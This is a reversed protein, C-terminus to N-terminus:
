PVMMTEIHINGPIILGNEVPIIDQNQMSGRSNDQLHISLSYIYSVFPFQEISRFIEDYSLSDGFNKENELYNLKEELLKRIKSDVNDYHQRIYIVASVNVPVVLPQQIEVRTGLLRRQELRELIIKSYDERIAISKDHLAPLCVVRVQNRGPDMLARAKKICLGPTSLVLKEYDERTVAAFPKEIDELFRNRVSEQTERFCGGSGAAPNTFLIDEPLGQGKFYNGAKVNGNEGDFLVVSGLLIQAGIFRGAEQICIQGSEPALTYNFAGAEEHGPKAFDFLVEGNEEKRLLLSFSDAVLKSFPLTVIQRDYGLVTALRYKRMVEEDYLIVRVSNRSKEPGYGHNGKNFSYIYEEETETIDFFRGNEQPAPAQKYQRYLGGVEERVLVSVYKRDVMDKRLHINTSKGSSIVISKTMRQRVELLFGDLQLLVPIMDYDARVLRGRICYGEEPLKSYIAAAEKPMRMRIEGNTLFGGTFDHSNMVVFGQETYVEWQVSAFLDNRKKEFPVRYQNEGCEAYFFMQEGPEPLKDSIIYIADDIKPENGFVKTQLDVEADTCFSIDKQKGDSQSYLGLIHCAPFRTRRPTEYTIDGIQFKQGIPLILDEKQHIAKLLVRATRGKDPVFGMMKLLAARVETPMEQISDQQLTEFISLNELITIGPDSPNYNTWEDTLLPIQLMAEMLRDQYSKEKILKHKLM